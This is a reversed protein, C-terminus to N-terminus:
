MCVSTRIYDLSLLIKLPQRNAWIKAFAKDGFDRSCWSVGAHIVTQGYEDEFESQINVTREIVDVQYNEVTVKFTQWGSRSETVLISVLFSHETTKKLREGFNRHKGRPFFCAIGSNWSFVSFVSGPLFCGQLIAVKLGRKEVFRIRLWIDGGPVIQTNHMSNLCM